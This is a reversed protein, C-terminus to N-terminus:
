QVLRRLRSWLRRGVALWWVHWAEDNVNANNPYIWLLGWLNIAVSAAVLSWRRWNMQGRLGVVVLLLGIPMWDLTYRYGFQYSGTNHYLALPLSVGLVSLWAAAVLPTVRFLRALVRLRVALSCRRFAARVLRSWIALRRRQVSKFVYLLPPTVFFISMGLPNPAIWPPEHLNVDPLQWLMHRLNRLAFRLNFSGYLAQTAVLAEAGDVYSYGFDLPSGFRSANYFLSLVVCAVLVGAFVLVERALRGTQRPRQGTLTMVVFFPFAFWCTPRALGALGLWLGALGTRNRGLVECAYLCVFTVAAVHATFWVSGLSAVYWHPTGAGFAIALALRASQSVRVWRSLRGMLVYVLVVNLAGWVCTVTADAFGFASGRLWVFPMFALAPLPGGPVYVRGEYVMLDYGAPPPTVLHTEGELFSEALYVYYPAISPHRLLRGASLGYLVAFGLFLWL